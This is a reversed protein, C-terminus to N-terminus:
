SFPQCVLLHLECLHLLAHPKCLSLSIMGYKTWCKSRAAAMRRNSRDASSGPATSTSPDAHPSGPTAPSPHGETESKRRGRLPTTSAADGAGTQSTNMLEDEAASDTDSGLDELHMSLQSNHFAAATTANDEATCAMEQIASESLKSIKPLSAGWPASSKGAIPSDTSTTAQEQPRWTCTSPGKKKRKQTKGKTREPTPAERQERSVDDGREGSAHTVLSSQSDDSEAPAEGRAISLDAPGEAIDQEEEEPGPPFRNRTKTRSLIKKAEGVKGSLSSLPWNYAHGATCNWPLVFTNVEELRYGEARYPIHPCITSHSHSWTVLNKFDEAMIHLLAGSHLDEILQINLSIFCLFHMLIFQMQNIQLLELCGHSSFNIYQVIVNITFRVNKYKVKDLM